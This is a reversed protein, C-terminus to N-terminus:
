HSIFEAIKDEGIARIEVIADDLIKMGSFRMSTDPVTGLIESVKKKNELDKYLDDPIYKLM